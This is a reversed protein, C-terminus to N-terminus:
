VENLSTTFIPAEAFRVTKGLPGNAKGRSPRYLQLQPVDETTEGPLRMDWEHPDLHQFWIPPLFDEPLHLIGPITNFMKEWLTELRSTEEHDLEQDRTYLRSISDPIENEESRVEEAWVVFQGRIELRSIIRLLAQAYLNKAGRSRIWHLANSNDIVIVVLGGQIHDYWHLLATIVALLETIAMSIFEGVRSHPSNRKDRHIM